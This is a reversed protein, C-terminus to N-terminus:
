GDGPGLMMTVVQMLRPPQGARLLSARFVRGLVVFEATLFLLLLAATGIIEQWPVGGGLRALMAFPTYLPIWSLLQPLFGDPNGVVSGGIAIFPGSLMLVLPMLYGQADQMSDSMAGISLFLMSTMLYGTLFYFVMSVVALPSHLTELAPALLESLHPPLLRAAATAFLIWTGVVTLGVAGVGMLKGRMLEDATVCALITEILKNSREEIVGQLMMTGSVLVSLLLLYAICLPLISRVVIRQAGNGPLPVTFQQVPYYWEIAAARDSAVGAAQMMQIRATHLVVNGIIGAADGAANGNTYFKVPDARDDIRAPIYVALVLTAPGEATAVEQSLYPRIRASFQDEPLNPDFGPPLEARFYRRVPPVFPTADAPLLPRLEALARDLGGKAVFQRADEDDLSRGDTALWPDPAKAVHWRKAYDRLRGIVEQQYALALHEDIEAVCCQAADLVVVASRGEVHRYLSPLVAVLLIVGPITLLTLWFSRTSTLQRYERMAVLLAPMM